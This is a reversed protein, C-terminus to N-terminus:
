CKGLDEILKPNGLGDVNIWTVTETDRFPFCESIQDVQEEQFHTADYDIVTILVPLNSPEGNMHSAGPPKVANKSLKHRHRSMTTREIYLSQIIPPM